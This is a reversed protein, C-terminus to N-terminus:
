GRRKNMIIFLQKKVKDRRHVSIPLTTNDLFLVHNFKVSSVYDYNVAFSAHIFLFDLKSLQENYIEKLSGYFEDKSGNARHIIIKRNSSEIYVIDKIKVKYTDFGKKYIFLDNQKGHIEIFRKMVDRINVPEIPKILFDFPRLVFLEMSYKSEWSIYVISTSNDKQVDRIFKGVEIGNFENKAFEIDLFILDYSIGTKLKNCFDTSSLYVEVEHEITQLTLFDILERELDAGVNIEDDCVAITIM